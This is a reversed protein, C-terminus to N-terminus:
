SPDIATGDETKSINVEEKRVTEQVSVTRENKHKKLHIEEVLMLKKEVVLVEKVVSIITVDDEERIPPASEVFINFEKREVTLEEESVSIDETVEEHHVKKSIKFRGTEMKEKDIRIKEEIVPIVKSQSKEADGDPRKEEMIQSTKEPSYDLKIINIGLMFAIGTGM